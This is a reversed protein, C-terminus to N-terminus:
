FLLHRKKKKKEHHDPLMHAHLQPHWTHQHHQKSVMAIQSMEKKFERNLHKQKSIHKQEMQEQQYLLEKKIKNLKQQAIRMQQSTKAQHMNNMEQQLVHKWKSKEKHKEQMIEQLTQKAITSTQFAQDFLQKQENILQKITQSTDPIVEHIMHQYITNVTRTEETHISKLFDQTDPTFDDIERDQKDKLHRLTRQYNILIKQRAEDLDITKANNKKSAINTTHESTLQLAKKALLVQQTLCITLTIVLHNFSKIM